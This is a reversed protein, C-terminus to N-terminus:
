TIITSNQANLGRFEFIMRTFGAASIVTVGVPYSTEFINGKSGILVLNPECIMVGDTANDIADYAIGNQNAAATAKQTPPVFLFRGTHLTPVIVDGNVTLKIQGKYLVGLAAAEGAAAFVTPSPYTADIYTADTATTPEGLRFAINSTIFSDQQRLRVETNTPQSNNSGLDSTLIGFTYQTRGLVLQQEFRLTSQTLKVDDLSLKAKVVIDMGTKYVLRADMQSIRNSM